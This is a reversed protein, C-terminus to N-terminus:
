EVVEADVVPEDEYARWRHLFSAVRRAEISLSLALLPDNLADGIILGVTISDPELYLGTRPWPLAYLAVDGSLTVRGRKLNWGYGWRRLRDLPSGDFLAM